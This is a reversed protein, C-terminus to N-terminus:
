KRCADFSSRAMETTPIIEIAETLMIAPVAISMVSKQPDIGKQSVESLTFAGCWQWLRRAKCLIVQTRDISEVTGIHVGASFTRVICHKGLIMDISM